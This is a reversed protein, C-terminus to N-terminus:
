PIPFGTCLCAQGGESMERERERALRLGIATAKTVSAPLRYSFLSAFPFHWNSSCIHLASHSVAAYLSLFPPFFSFSSATFLHSSYRIFLPTTTDSQLLFVSVNQLINHTHTHALAFYLLLSCLFTLLAPPPPPPPPVLNNICSILPQFSRQSRDSFTQGCRNYCRERGSVSCLQVATNM